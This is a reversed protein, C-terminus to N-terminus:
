GIPLEDIYIKKEGVSYNELNYEGPLCYTIQIEPHKEAILMAALTSPKTSMPAIVINNKNLFPNLVSELAAKSKKIDGAPFSFECVDQRSLILKQDDRNRSLFNKDTPPDAIGLLVQAPEHEEIIKLARETEFGSLICLINRWRSEQLGNFGLVNRIIRFGQTLWDGHGQPSVYITRIKAGIYHKRLMLISILLSERNFTTTDITITAEIPFLKEKPALYSKLTALQKPANLWSGVAVELSECHQKLLKQLQNLNKKTSCSDSKELFEENVYIIGTKCRYQPSLSKVTSVSRDEYSACVLFLDDPRGETINHLGGKSRFESINIGNV